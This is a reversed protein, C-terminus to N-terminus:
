GLHKVRLASLADRAEILGVGDAMEKESEAIAADIEFEEIECNHKRTRKDYAIGVLLIRGKYSELAQVYGKEKIQQIAAKADQNWKLEIIIAPKEAHRPRPLFVLDAYGKGSPFERIVDYFRKASYYALSVAYSLANEDNYQLHSMAAHAKEIADAVMDAKKELTAQLLRDSAKVSEIVEKWGTSGVLANVYEQTIERNPIFVEKTDFDYGLYGLHVLLTMVDDARNLTTMDNSFTGTDIRVRENALLSLISERLGDFNMDLYIKLAEYTETRNWYTDFVKTTMAGVVSRPNYVSIGNQFHYGDYWSRCEDFDMGYSRCLGKVEDETFGVYEALVNPNEMSFEWFMNLASHSGYKKIPLIGTMYALGIYPKDKMWSRLFDLYRKQDGTREKYERFVCDWEDIVIIFRRKTNQYIDSMTRVLSTNDFYRFDPYAELLDWLISKQLLQIMDEMTEANSLFDQMNLQIVDYRGQHQLFSPHRSISLDGFLSDGDATRDYYAAVMHATMSKGFRRPRSICVFRKETGLISNLYVLMGTKDVYIDSQVAMGFSDGGPNLYIGM